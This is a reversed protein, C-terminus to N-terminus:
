GALQGIAEMKQSKLFRNELKKREIGGAITRSITALSEVIRESLNRKAYFAMVGVLREEIVLPYGVFSVINEKKVWTQRKLHPDNAINNTLYPTRSESIGGILGEGVPIRDAEDEPAAALGASAQLILHHGSADNAVWIRALAGDLNRVLSEMCLQLMAQLTMSQTTALTVDDTINALGVRSEGMADWFVSVIGQPEDNIDRLSSMALDIPITGNSRDTLVTEDALTAVPGNELDGLLIPKAESSQSLQLVETMKKGLAEEQPWKTIVEAMRNFFTINGKNDAAVVASPFGNVTDAFWREVKRLRMEVRHKYLAIEINAELERESFPKVIYGFPETIAARELTEKDTYATVYLVPINRNRRIETAAEIGDMDGKLVIDMLILDPVKENAMQVAEPGSSAIGVVQHGLGELRMELERAIIIEDDVVLIKANGM